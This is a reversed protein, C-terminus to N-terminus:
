FLPQMHSSNLPFSDMFFGLIRKSDPELAALVKSQWSRRGGKFPVPADFWAHQSPAFRGCILPHDTELVFDKGLSYKERNAGHSISDIVRRDPSVLVAHTPHSHAYIIRRTAAQHSAGTERALTFVALPSFTHKRVCEQMVHTPMLLIAAAKYCFEEEYSRVVEPQKYHYDNLYAKLTGEHACWFLHHAIEHLATFLLRSPATNIDLLIHPEGTPAIFAKNIPAKEVRIGLKKALTAFDRSYGHEKHFEEVYQLFADRVEIPTPENDSWVGM